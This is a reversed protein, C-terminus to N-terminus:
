AFVKYVTKSSYIEGPRVVTDPFHSINVANPHKHTELCLGSFPGYKIRKKGAIVPIWKGSYFHVVPETSFVQLLVGSAVSRVEAMLSLSVADKDTVFSKDYEPIKNLRGRLTAFEHFDFETDAVSSLDGNAVLNDDQDLIWSGYIRVEHDKIDGIGNNLNFYSHHTLNVVTPRDCSASYEYSLENENNLEFRIVVDLKGPYGEEGDPSIYKLELANVPTEEIKVLQWVKKDFGNVGGHLQDNGNNKSLLYEKKDIVFQADKIRNANRGVACGFWPYHALYSENTYDEVNDFGLVIDNLSGNKSKICFSTIIAGYNTIFVETGSLNTLTFLYVDQGSNDTYCYQKKVSM